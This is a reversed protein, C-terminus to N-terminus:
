YKKGLKYWSLKVGNVMQTKNRIEYTRRLELLRSGYQAIRLDLIAKLTIWKRQRLLKLLRKRQTDHKM